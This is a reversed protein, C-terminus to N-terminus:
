ALPCWAPARRCRVAAEPDATPLLPPAQRPAPTPDVGSQRALGWLLTPLARCEAHDGASNLLCINASICEHIRKASAKKTCGHLMQKFIQIRLQQTFPFVFGMTLGRYQPMLRLSVDYLECVSGAWSNRCGHGRLLLKSAM